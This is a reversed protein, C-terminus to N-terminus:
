LKIYLSAGVGINVPYTTVPTNKNISTIGYRIVPSIGFGIKKNIAYVAEVGGQLSFYANRVGELKHVIETERNGATTYEVEAKDAIIKSIVGGALVNVSLRGKKVNLGALLPISISQIHIAGNTVVISDSAQPQSNTSHKIEALGYTTSLKFKYSGSSNQLAKVVTGSLSTFADSLLLGFHLFLKDSVKREILLGETHSLDPRERGSLDSINQNNYVYQQHFRGSIRDFSFYPLITFSCKQTETKVKRNEKDASQKDTQLSDSQKDPVHVSPQFLKSDTVLIFGAKEQNRSSPKNGSYFPLPNNDPLSKAQNNLLLPVMEQVQISVRNNLNKDPHKRDFNIAEKDAKWPQKVDPSAIENGKDQVKMQLGSPLLYGIFLATLTLAASLVFRKFRFYKNKYKEAEQRNLEMEIVQWTEAPPMEQYRSLSRAFLDDIDRLNKNM